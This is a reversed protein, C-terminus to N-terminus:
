NKAGYLSLVERRFVDGREKYGSFMDFSSCMPSLLVIEDQRANESAAKVAEAMNGCAIVNVFPGFADRIKEKAEGIVVILKVHEKVSSLIQRYDGGKDRGGAILVVPRLLSDLAVRTADINTAKSDDIYQIGSFSGITEFRHDLTKFTKIASFIEKDALGMLRSAAISCIMNDINHKGKLPIDGSNLVEHDPDPKNVINAAPRKDEAARSHGYFIVNSKLDKVLPDGELDTHIIAWDSSDQNMFIKFKEKKYEELGAHRDYHDDTVNLLLAIKPRFRDITELQFSSVEIVAVSNATMSGVVRTFPIGINGCVFADVASSKLIHGILEVTTSKGNTGTVAIIPSECFIYGLEIEGIIKAGPPILDKMQETRLDVGPSPIVIEAGEFFEKTHKGSEAFIGKASLERTIASFRDAAAAESVYVRAGKSKLLEASSIGSVGMGIVIAKKNKLDM